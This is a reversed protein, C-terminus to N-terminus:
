STLGVRSRLSPRLLPRRLIPAFIHGFSFGRLDEFVRLHGTKRRSPLYRIEESIPVCRKSSKLNQSSKNPRSAPIRVRPFGGNKRLFELMPAFIHGIATRYGPTLEKPSTESAMRRGRDGRVGIRPHQHGLPRPRVSIGASYFEARQGEPRCSAEAGVLHAGHEDTDGEEEGRAEPSATRRKPSEPARTPNRGMAVAPTLLTRPKRRREKRTKGPQMRGRPRERRERRERPPRRMAHSRGRETRAQTTCTARSM